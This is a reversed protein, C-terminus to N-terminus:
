KAVEITSVLLDISTTVQVDEREELQRGSLPVPVLTVELPGRGNAKVANTASLRFVATRKHGLEMQDDFFSVSGVFGPDETATKENGNPSNIFVLVAFSATSSYSFELSVRATGGNGLDSMKEALNEGGPVQLTVPHTGDVESKPATLRSRQDLTVKAGNQLRKKLEDDDKSSKMPSTASEVQTDYRYSLYPLLVTTLVSIRVPHGKRDVFDSFETTAWATDNPNSNHRLINWEVWLEDVRSHHTWFIPDLPSMLTGMEGGVFNHIGNHPTTELPGAAPGHESADNLAVPDSAFAIFNTESLINDIVTPGVAFDPASSSPTATRPSHFLASSEGWFVAPIQPNTTWNWYPLAFDNRGTLERCIEEFYWLYARHWPLILWSNHRCFNYHIQAQRHWNRPDTSPLAQMARIAAAYTTVTPDNPALTAINKRIPRDAIQQNQQETCASALGAGGGALAAIQFLQRRTLGLTELAISAAGRGSKQQYPKPL